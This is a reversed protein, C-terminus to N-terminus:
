THKLLDILLGEEALKESALTPGFGKYKERYKEIIM